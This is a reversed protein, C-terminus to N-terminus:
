RFGREDLRAEQSGSLTNGAIVVRKCIDAITLCKEIEHIFCHCSTRVPFVGHENNMIVLPTTEKIMHRWGGSGVNIRRMLEAAKTHRREDNGRPRRPGFDLVTDIIM